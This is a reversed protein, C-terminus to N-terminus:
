QGFRGGTLKAAMTEVDDLTLILEWGKLQALNRFVLDREASRPVGHSYVTFEYGREALAFMRARVDEAHLEHLPLRVRRVGMEELAAVAWDNRATRRTFPSVSNNTRLWALGLWNERMEVRSRRRSRRPPTSRRCRSPRRAPRRRAGLTRGHTRVLHTVHGDEYVRVLCYGLKARDDRGGEADAPAVRFLESYDQRVFSTAPITYLRHRRVPQLLLQPRARFLRGRYQHQELLELLWTRGPEDLNDYSGPEDPAAVFAPYHM